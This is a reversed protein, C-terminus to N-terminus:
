LVSPTLLTINTQLISESVLSLKYLRTDLERDAEQLCRELTLVVTSANQNSGVPDGELYPKGRARERAALVTRLQSMAVAMVSNSQSTSETQKHM